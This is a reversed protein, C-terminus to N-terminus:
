SESTVASPTLHHASMHDQLAVDGEDADDIGCQLCACTRATLYVLSLQWSVSVAGVTKEWLPPVPVGPLQLSPFDEAANDVSMSPPKVNWANRGLKTAARSVTLTRPTPPAYIYFLPGLRLIRTTSNTAATHTWVGNMRASPYSSFAQACTIPTKWPVLGGCSHTALLRFSQILQCM